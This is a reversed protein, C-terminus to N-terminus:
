CILLSHVFLYLYTKIGKLLFSNSGKFFVMCSLSMHVSWRNNSYEQSNDQYEDREESQEADNWERVTRVALLIVRGLLEHIHLTINVIVRRM